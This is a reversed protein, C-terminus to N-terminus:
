LAPCTLSLSWTEERKENDRQSPRENRRSLIAKVFRLAESM